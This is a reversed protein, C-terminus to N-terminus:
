LQERSKDSWSDGWAVDRCTCDFIEEEGWMKDDGEISEYGGICCSLWDPRVKKAYKTACFEMNKQIKFTGVYNEDIEIMAVKSAPDTLSGGVLEGIHVTGETVEEEIRMRAIGVGNEPSSSYRKHDPEYYIPVEQKCELDVGIDKVFASAYEIQHHMSTRVECQYNKGWTKEKLKSNYVIPNKEYYGTGYAMAVPAYVMENQELFSINQSYAYEAPLYVQTNLDQPYYKIKSENSSILTAADMTGSGHMYNQLELTPTNVNQYVMAYGEGQVDQEFNHEYLQVWGASASAAMFLLLALAAGAKMMRGIRIV